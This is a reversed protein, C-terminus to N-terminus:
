VYTRGAVDHIIRLLRDRYHDPDADREIKLRAATGMQQRLAASGVLRQMAEILADRDRPPVLVGTRGDDVIEPVANLRSGITPLAAGAAEQYVLGFAENRTPMVFIDAQRWADSWAATHGRVNRRQTVGRPLAGVAWDTVLILEARGAFQGATWADLLDYGGKRRFDGGMFLLRPVGGAAARAAREAIWGTDLYPFDVPNPIVHVPTRCDPYTRAIERAAWHSTSVIAAARRFIEGDRRLNPEITRRELRGHMDQLVCTQTCDVSVISPRQRMLDLSGYATSQRHFHLVDFHALGRALLRRRALLGTHLEQRYRAYDLNRLGDPDPWLRQCMVRRRIRESLTLRETLLFYEAHIDARGALAPQLWAAYSSLGLIGGNVFAVRPPAAPRSM